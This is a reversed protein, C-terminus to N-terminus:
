THCNKVILMQNCDISGEWSLLTLSGSVAVERCHGGKDDRHVFFGYMSKRKFREVIAVKKQGM